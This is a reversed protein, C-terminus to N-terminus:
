GLNKDSIVICSLSRDQYKCLTAYSEGSVAGGQGDIMFLGDMLRGALGAGRSVGVNKWNLIQYQHSSALVWSGEGLQAKCALSNRGMVM